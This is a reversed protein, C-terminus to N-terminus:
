PQSESAPARLHFHAGLNRNRGLRRGRPYATPALGGLNTQVGILAGYIDLVMVGDQSVLPHYHAFGGGADEPIPVRAVHLLAGNNTDFFALRIENEAIAGDSSHVATEAVAVFVGNALAVGGYPYKQYDVNEFRPLQLTRVQAPWDVVIFDLSRKAWNWQLCVVREDTVAVVEHCWGLDKILEGSTGRVEWMPGNQSGHSIFRPQLYGDGFPLRHAAQFEQLSARRVAGCADIALHVPTLQNGESALVMRAMIERSGSLWAVTDWEFNLAQDPPLPGHLLLPALDPLEVVWNLDGTVTDVSVLGLRLPDPGHSFLFQGDPMLRSLSGGAGECCPTPLARRAEGEQPWAPSWWRLGTPYDHEDPQTDRIFEGQLTATALLPADHLAPHLPLVRPAQGQDHPLAECGLPAGDGVDLWSVARAAIGSFSPLNLVSVVAEGDTRGPAQGLAYLSDRSNDDPKALEPDDPCPVTRSWVVEAEVQAPIEPPAALAAAALDDGPLPGRDPACRDVVDPWMRPLGTGGADADGMDRPDAIDAGPRADMSPDADVVAVDGVTAADRATAADPTAPATDSCDCGWLAVFSALLLLPWRVPLWAM